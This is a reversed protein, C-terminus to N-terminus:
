HKAWNLITYFSGKLLKDMVQNNSVEKTGINYIQGGVKQCLNELDEFSINETVVIMNLRPDVECLSELSIKELAKKKTLHFVNVIFSFFIKQQSLFRVFCNCKKFM